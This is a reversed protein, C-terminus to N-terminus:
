GMYGTIILNNQVSGQKVQTNHTANLTENLRLVTKIADLQTRKDAGDQDLMADLRLMAKGLLADGYHRAIREPSHLRSDVAERFAKDRRQNRDVWQKNHGIYESATRKQGFWPYASLFRKHDPTFSDWGELSELDRQDMAEIRQTFDQVALAPHKPRSSTM